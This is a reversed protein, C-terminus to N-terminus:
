IHFALRNYLVKMFLLMKIDFLLGLCIPTITIAVRVFTILHPVSHPHGINMCWNFGHGYNGYFHRFLWFGCSFVTPMISGFLIASILYRKQILKAKSAKMAM